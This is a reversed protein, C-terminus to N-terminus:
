YLLYQLGSQGKDEKEIKHQRKEWRGRVTKDNESFFLSSFVM